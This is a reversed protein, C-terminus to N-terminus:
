EKKMEDLRCYLDGILQRENLITWAISLSAGEMQKFLTSIDSAVADEPTKHLVGRSDPYAKVSLPQIM